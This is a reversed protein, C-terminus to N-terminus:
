RRSATIVEVEVRQEVVEVEAAVDDDLELGAVETGRM